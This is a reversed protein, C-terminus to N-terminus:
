WEEENDESDAEVHEEVMDSHGWDEDCTCEEEEEVVKIEEKVESKVPENSRASSKAEQARPQVLKGSNKLQLLPTPGHAFEAEVSPLAGIWSDPVFDEVEPEQICASTRKLDNHRTHRGNENGTQRRRPDGTMRRRWLELRHNPTFSSFQKRHADQPNKCDISSHAKPLARHM